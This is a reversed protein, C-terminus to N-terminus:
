TGYYERGERENEIYIIDLNKHFLLNYKNTNRAPHYRM